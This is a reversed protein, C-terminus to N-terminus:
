GNLWSGHQKYYANGVDCLDTGRRKECYACKGCPKPSKEVNLTALAKKAVDQANRFATMVLQVGWHEPIPMNVIKNFAGRVAALDRELQRRMEVLWNPIQYQWFGNADLDGYGYTVQGSIDASATYPKGDVFWRIAQLEQERRNLVQALADAQLGNNRAQHQAEQLQQKLGEVVEPPSWHEFRVDIEREADQLEREKAALSAYLANLADHHEGSDTDGDMYQVARKLLYRQQEQEKTLESM